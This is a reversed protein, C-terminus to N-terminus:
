EPIPVLSDKFAPSTVKETEYDLFQGVIEPPEPAYNTQVGIRVRSASVVQQGQEGMFGQNSGNLKLHHAVRLQTVPDVLDRQYFKLLDLCKQEIADIIADSDELNSSRIEIVVELDGNYEPPEQGEDTYETNNAYLLICEGEQEWIPSARNPYVNKGVETIPYVPSSPNAYPLGLFINWLANIVQRRSHVM